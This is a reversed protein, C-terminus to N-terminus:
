PWAPPADQREDQLKYWFNAGGNGIVFNTGATATMPYIVQIGTANQYDMLKQYEAKSMNMFVFGVRAYSDVRLDYYEIGNGDTLHGLEKVVAPSGTEVGIAYLYDRGAANERQRQTGDWFGTGAFIGLRPLMTKYYGDRFSVDYHSFFPVILSFLLLIMILAFAVVASQDKRFRLWADKFYGIPRTKLKEDRIREDSRIFRFKEAPIDRLRKDDMM